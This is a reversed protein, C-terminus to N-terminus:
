LCRAVEEAAHTKMFKLQKMFFDYMMMAMMQMDEQDLEDIWDEYMASIGDEEITEEYDKDDTNLVDSHDSLVNNLVKTPAPLLDFDDTGASEHPQKTVENDNENSCLRKKAKAENM